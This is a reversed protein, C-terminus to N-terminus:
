IKSESNICSPTILPSPAPKAAILACVSRDNTIALFGKMKESTVIQDSMTSFVNAVKEM